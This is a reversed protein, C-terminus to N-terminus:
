RQPWFRLLPLLGNCAFDEWKKSFVPACTGLFFGGVDFAM